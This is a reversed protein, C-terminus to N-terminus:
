YTARSSEDIKRPVLWPIFGLNLLDNLANLYSDLNHSWMIRYTDAAHIVFWLSYTELLNWKFWESGNM